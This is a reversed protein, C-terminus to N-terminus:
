RTAASLTCLRARRRMAVEVRLRACRSLKASTQLVTLLHSLLLELNLLNIACFASPLQPRPTTTTSRASASTRLELTAAARAIPRVLAGALVKLVCSQQSPRRGTWRRRTWDVARLEGERAGSSQWGFRSVGLEHEHSWRMRRAGLPSSTSDYHQVALRAARRTCDVGRGGAGNEEGGTGWKWVRRSQALRKSSSPPERPRDCACSDPDTCASLAVVLLVTRRVKKDGGLEFSCPLLSTLFKASRAPCFRPRM